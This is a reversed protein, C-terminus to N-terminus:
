HVLRLMKRWRIKGNAVSRDKDLSLWVFAARGVIHDEPVFGWYRGDASNHRNDGMMFYYDMKFTYSDAPQGNIFVKGNKVELTNGEYISIIRSYLVYNITDIKVTQGKSPVQLPGFNDRNWPFAPSHPFVTPDWATDNLMEPVTDLMNGFNKNFDKLMGFTMPLVMTNSPLNM